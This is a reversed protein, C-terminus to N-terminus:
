VFGQDLYQSLQPPVVPRGYPTPWCRCRPHARQFAVTMPFIRHHRARCIPDVISDNTTEWRWRTFGARSYTAQAGMGLLNTVESTAIAEARAAGFLPEIARIVDPMTMGQAEARAIIRRLSRQTSASFQAWWEDSYSGIVEQAAGHVADFDFPLIPLGGAGPPLPGGGRPPDARVGSALRERADQWAREGRARSPKQQSGLQAGVMFAELFLPTVRGLLVRRLEAWLDPAFLVELAHATVPEAARAGLAKLAHAHRSRAPM